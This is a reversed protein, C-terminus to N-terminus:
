PKELFKEMKELKGDRLLGKGDIKITPRMVTFDIHAVSKVRGGLTFNSSVAYSM